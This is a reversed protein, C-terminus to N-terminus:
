LINVILQRLQLFAEKGQGAPHCDVKETARRIKARFLSSIFFNAASVNDSNRVVPIARASVGFSESEWGGLAAAGALGLAALFASFASEAMAASISSSRCAM